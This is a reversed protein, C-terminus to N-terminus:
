GKSRPGTTVVKIVKAKHDRDICLREKQGKDGTAGNNGPCLVQMVKIEMQEQTLIGESIPGTVGVNEHIRSCRLCRAYDGKQGKDGNAGAPGTDGQVGQSRAGTVGAEGIM